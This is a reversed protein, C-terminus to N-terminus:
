LDYREIRNDTPTSFYVYLRATPGWRSGSSGAKVEAM